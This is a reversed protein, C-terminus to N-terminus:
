RNKEMDEVAYKPRGLWAAAIITGFVVALFVCILLVVIILLWFMM